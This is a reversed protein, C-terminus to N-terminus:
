FATADTPGPTFFNLISLLSWPCVNLHSKETKSPFVGKEPLNSLFFWFQWNLSFTLVYVLEFICFEITTNVNETKSRFCRKPAFKTWFIFIILKLQFKSYASNLPPTWKKQKPHSAGKKPSNPEFFLFKLKFQFKTSLSIRIHLIWHHKSNKQKLRSVGKKPFNPEFFWFQYNLSFKTSLSIETDLNM